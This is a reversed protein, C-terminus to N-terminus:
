DIASKIELDSSLFSDANILAPTKEAMAKAIWLKGSPNAVKVAVTYSGAIPKVSAVAIATCLMGSPIATETGM